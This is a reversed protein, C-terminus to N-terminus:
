GRRREAKFGSSGDASIRGRFASDARKFQGTRSTEEPLEGDTWQGNIMVGMKGCGVYRTVIASLRLCGLGAVNASMATYFLSTALFYRRLAVSPMQAFNEGKPTELGGKGSELGVGSDFFARSRYSSTPVSVPHFHHWSWSM